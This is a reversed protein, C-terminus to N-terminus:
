CPPTAHVRNWRAQIAGQVLAERHAEKEIDKEGTILLRRREEPRKSVRSRRSHKGHGGGSHLWGPPVESLRKGNV